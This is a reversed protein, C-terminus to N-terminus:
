NFIADLYDNATQIAIAEEDKTVNWIVKKFHNELYKARNYLEDNPWGLGGPFVNFQNATQGSEFLRVTTNGQTAQKYGAYGDAFFTTKHPQGDKFKTEGTKGIPPVSKRGTKATNVYLPKRSYQGIATDDAALGDTHIRTVMVDVLNLGVEYELARGCDGNLCNFAAFLDDLGETRITVKM